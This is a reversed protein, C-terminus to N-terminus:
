LGRQLRWSRQVFPFRFRYSGEKEQIVYHDRQLMTLLYRAKEKDETVVRAKLLNFLEDFHLPKNAVSLIDLLELASPQEDAAYYTDIRERYHRMHWRDQPDTLYNAVIEDVTASSALGHSNKLQDVIHHIYYPIGDVATAIAKATAELDDTKISEGDLLLKTLETAEPFALPPVDEILMDNTPDNAYGSHKLSSIVQHLGISGTFVMRLNAHTQRLSRLTDLVEM